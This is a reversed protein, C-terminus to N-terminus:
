RFNPLTHIAIPMTQHKVKLGDMACCFEYVSGLSMPGFDHCFGLYTINEDISFRVGYRPPNM